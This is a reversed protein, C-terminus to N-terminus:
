PSKKRPSRRPRIGLLLRCDHRVREAWRLAAEAQRKSPNDGPYRPDVAFDTLYIAGRRLSGLVSYHRLLLNLVDDLNHTRPISLGLEELLAKLYKEACQQCHFCVGDHLPTKGRNSRRAIVWDTEAKRVWLTTTRKMSCKVKPCLRWSFHIARPSVGSWIKRRASSSTCRSRRDSRGTFRSHEISNIAGAHHRSYGRRQRHASDRICVLRIPHDQRPSLARGGRPRLPPHPAHARRRRSVM